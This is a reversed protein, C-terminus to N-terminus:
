LIHWKKSNPLVEESIGLKYTSQHNIAKFLISIDGGTCSNELIAGLLAISAPNYKLVLKKAALLQKDDLEKFVAILRRCAQDPMTDPISKFFRLCDLLQLVPINEKNDKRVGIQLAAPVQTTLAYKNFITFGTIYGTPKGNKEILDKVLQFTDPQLEGFESMRPKYFRGKSLRSIQGATVMNNLIKNITAQKSVDIPFDSSTFVYGAEFRNITNRITDTM